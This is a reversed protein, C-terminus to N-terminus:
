TGGDWSSHRLRHVVHAVNRERAPISACPTGEVEFLQSQVSASVERIVLMEAHATPDKQAEVRNHARALVKGNLVLVAGIPVEDELAAQPM